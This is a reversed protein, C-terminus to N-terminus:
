KKEDKFEKIFKNLWKREGNLVYIRRTALQINALHGKKEIIYKELESYGRITEELSKHYKELCEVADKHDLLNLNKLAVDVPHISPQWSSAIEKLKAIFMKKGDKTLSYIKQAVNNESLKTESKVIQRKELKKLLKYVSSMSIETWYDMSRSEIDLKIEYAHKSKESLLGLLAAEKNSIKSM